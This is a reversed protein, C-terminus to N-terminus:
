EVRRDQIEQLSPDSERIWAEIPGFLSKMPAERAEEAARWIDLEGQFTELERERVPASRPRGALPPLEPRPLPAVRWAPRTGVEAGWRPGFLYVGSYMIKAKTNEVGACRMAEYFMLHVEQWTEGTRHAKACYRDHVVAARLKPGVFPGGTFSWLFQPISAGDTRDGEKAVWRKSADDVYTFDALLEMRGDDLHKLTLDGEYEGWSSGNPCGCLVWAALLLLILSLGGLGRTRGRKRQSGDNVSWSKM